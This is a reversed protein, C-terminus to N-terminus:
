KKVPAPSEKPVEAKKEPAAAPQAQPQAQPIQKITGQQMNYILLNIIAQENTKLARISRANLWLCLAVAIILIAVVITKVNIKVSIFGGQIKM